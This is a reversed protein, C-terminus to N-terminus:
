YASKKSLVDEGEIPTCQMINALAHPKLVIAGM